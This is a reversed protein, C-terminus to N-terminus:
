QLDQLFQIVDTLIVFDFKEIKFDDNEINGSFFKINKHESKAFEIMKDSIDIGVGEKTKLSSITTGTGCGIDLVKKNEPIISSVLNIKEKNYYNAFKEWRSLNKTKDNFYKKIDLV